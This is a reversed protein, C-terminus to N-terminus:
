SLSHLATPHANACSLGLRLSFRPKIWRATSLQLFLLWSGRSLLRRTRRCALICVLFVVIGLAALWGCPGGTSGGCPKGGPLPLCDRIPGPPECICWWPAPLSALSSTLPINWGIHRLQVKVAGAGKGKKRSCVYISLTLVRHIPSAIHIMCIQICGMGAGFYRLYMSTSRKTERRNGNEAIGRDSREAMGKDFSRGSVVQTLIPPFSYV